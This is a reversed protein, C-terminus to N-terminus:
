QGKLFNRLLENFAKPNELNSVHGANPIIRQIASPVLELVKNKKAADVSGTLVLVPVSVKLHKIKDVVSTGLLFRPEIHTPQWADWKYIMNWIPSIIHEIM